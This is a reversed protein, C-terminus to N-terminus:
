FRNLTGHLAVSPSPSEMFRLSCGVVLPKRKARRQINITRHQNNSTQDKEMSRRQNPTGGEPPKVPGGRSSDPSWVSRYERQNVGHDEPHAATSRNRPRPPRSRAGNRGPSSTISRFADRAM